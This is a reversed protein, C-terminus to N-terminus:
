AFSTVRTIVTLAQSPSPAIRETSPNAQLLPAPALSDPPQARLPNQQGVAGRYVEIQEDAGRAAQKLPLNGLDVRQIGPSVTTQLVSSPKRDSSVEELSRSLNSLSCFGADAVGTLGAGDCGERGGGRRISPRAEHDGTWSGADRCGKVSRLRWHRPCIAGGGPLGYRGPDLWSVSGCSNNWCLLTLSTNWEVGILM